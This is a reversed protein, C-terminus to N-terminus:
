LQRTVKASYDQWAALNKMANQEAESLEFKGKRRALVTAERVASLLDAFKPVDHLSFGEVKEALRQWADAAQAPSLRQARRGILYCRDRRTTISSMTKM